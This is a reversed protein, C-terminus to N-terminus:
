SGQRIVMMGTSHVEMHNMIVDLWDTYPVGYPATLDFKPTKALVLRTKLGIGVWGNRLGMLSQFSFHVCTIVLEM